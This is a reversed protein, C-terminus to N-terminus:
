VDREQTSSLVTELLPHCLGLYRDIFGLLGTSADAQALGSRAHQLYEQARQLRDAFLGVTDPHDDIVRVVDNVIQAGEIMFGLHADMPSGANQFGELMAQFRAPAEDARRLRVLEKTASVRTVVFTSAGVELRSGEEVEVASGGVDLMASRRPERKGEATALETVRLDSLAVTM